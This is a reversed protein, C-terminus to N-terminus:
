EGHMEITGSVTIHIDQKGAEIVPSAIEAQMAMPHGRTRMAHIPKGATNITIEVLRYHTYGFQNAILKARQTFADIAEAINASTSLHIRNYALAEDNAWTAGAFGLIPLVIALRLLINKM